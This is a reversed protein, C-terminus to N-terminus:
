QGVEARKQQQNFRNRLTDLQQELNEIEAIIRATDRCQSDHCPQNYHRQTALLLGADDKESALIKRKWLESEVNHQAQKLALIQHTEVLDDLKWEIKMLWVYGGLALLFLVGLGRGIALINSPDLWRRWTPDTDGNRNPAM